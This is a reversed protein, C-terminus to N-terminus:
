YIFENVEYNSEDTLNSKFLELCKKRWQENHEYEMFGLSDEEFSESEPKDYCYIEKAMLTSGLVSEGSKLLEFDKNTYFTAFITGKCYTYFEDDRFEFVCKCKNKFYNIVGTVHIDFDKEDECIHESHEIDDIFTMNGKIDEFIVRINVAYKKGELTNEVLKYYPKFKFM